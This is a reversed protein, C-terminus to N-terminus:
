VECCMTLDCEALCACALAQELSLAVTDPACPTRSRGAGPLVQVRAQDTVLIAGGRFTANNGEFRSSRVSVVAQDRVHVAAGNGAENNYFSSGQITIQATKSATIAGSATGTATNRSITSSLVTLRANVVKIASSYSGPTSSVNNDQITCQEALVSTGNNHLVLPTAENFTFSSKRFTVKSGRNICVALWWAAKGGGKLDTVRAANFVANSQGCVTLLCEDNTVCDKGGWLVGPPTKDPGWVEKLVEHAAM